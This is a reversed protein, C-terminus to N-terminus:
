TRQVSKVSDDRRLWVSRGPRGGRHGSHRVHRGLPQQCDRVAARMLISARRSEDRDGLDGDETAAVYISNLHNLWLDNGTDEEDDGIWEQWDPVM